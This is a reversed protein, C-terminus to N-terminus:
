DGETSGSHDKRMQIAVFSAEWFGLGVKVFMLLKLLILTRTNGNNSFLAMLKAVAIFDENM